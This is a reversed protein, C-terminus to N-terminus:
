FQLMKGRIKKYQMSGMKEIQGSSLPSAGIINQPVQLKLITNNGEYPQM